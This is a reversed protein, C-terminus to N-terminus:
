EETLQALARALDLELEANKKPRAGNGPQYTRPPILATARALRSLAHHLSRAEFLPNGRSDKAAPVIARTDLLIRTTYKGLVHKLEILRIV